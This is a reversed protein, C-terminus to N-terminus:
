SGGGTRRPRARRLASAQLDPLAVGLELTVALGEGFSAALGAQVAARAGPPRFRMAWRVIAPGLFGIVPGVNLGLGDFRTHVYGLSLQGNIRTRDDRTRLPVDIDYWAEGYLAGILPQGRRLADEGVGRHAIFDFRPGIYFTFRQRPSLHWRAGVTLPLLMTREILEEGVDRTYAHRRIQVEPRWRLEARGLHASRAEALVPYPLAVAGDLALGIDLRREAIAVDFGDAALQPRPDIDRRSGVLGGVHGLLRVRGGGDSFWLTPAIQLRMSGPHSEGLTPRDGLGYALGLTTPRLRDFDGPRDHSILGAIAGLLSGGAAIAGSGVLLAAPDGAELSDGLILLLGASLVGIVVGTTALVLRAPRPRTCPSTEPVCSMFPARPPRRYRATATAGVEAPPEAPPESPRAAGPRAASSHAA